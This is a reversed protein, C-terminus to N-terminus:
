KRNIDEIIKWEERIYKEMTGERINHIVTTGNLHHQVSYIIEELQDKIVKSYKNDNDLNMIISLRKNDFDFRAEDIKDQSHEQSPYTENYLTFSTKGLHSVNDIVNNLSTIKSKKIEQQLQFSNNQLNSQKNMSNTFIYTSIATIFVIIVPFVYSKFWNYEEKTKEDSKVIHVCLIEKNEKIVNGEQKRCILSYVIM